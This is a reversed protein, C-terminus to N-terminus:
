EGAAPAPRRAPLRLTAVAIGSLIIAFAAIARWTFPEGLLVVGWTVGVAPAIFNNAAVFNPGVTAALRFYLLMALGSAFLGLMTIGFISIATPRLALPSELIFTLIVIAVASCSMAAGTAVLAPVDRIRRAIVLSIAFCCAAGVIMLQGWFHAGLGGLSSPGILLVIGAFGLLVGVLKRANIKDDTFAHALPLTLLPVTSILIAALGSDIAVQGTSILSFPLVNGFLGLLIFHRWRRLDRPFRHGMIRAAAVLIIAGLLIRSATLAIPTLSQLGLEVFLFSSGWIVALTILTVYDAPRAAHPTSAPASTM